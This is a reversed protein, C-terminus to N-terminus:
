YNDISNEYKTRNSETAFIGFKTDLLINNFNYNDTEHNYIENLQCVDPPWVAGQRLRTHNPFHQVLGAHAPLM